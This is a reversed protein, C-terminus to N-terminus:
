LGARALHIAGVIDGGSIAGRGPGTLFWERGEWDLCILRSQELLQWAEAWRRREQEAARGQGGRALLANRRSVGEPGTFEERLLEEALDIIGPQNEIEM